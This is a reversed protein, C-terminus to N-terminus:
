ALVVEREARSLVAGTELVSEIKGEGLSYREEADRSRAAALAYLSEALRLREAAGAWDHRARAREAKVFARHEREKADLSAAEERARAAQAAAAGGDWIPIALSVSARYAPFVNSMQGRAGAEAV